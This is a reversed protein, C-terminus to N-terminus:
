KVAAAPTTKGKTYADAVERVFFTISKVAADNGPIAYSIRSLDCDTNTLGITTVRMKAAEEVAIHEHKTDVIFLAAPLDELGRLGGYMIELKAIERDILLREHKTYKSLEGKERQSILSELRDIRKKIEKFNTLTGGIWRGEVFPMSLESAVARIIKRAEPKGGVFLIKKGSVGLSEVFAKAKELADTTKELDFIEVRQKQGYLFPKSSPHRRSKVYGFHAGADFMREIVARDIEKATTEPMPTLTAFQTRKPLM